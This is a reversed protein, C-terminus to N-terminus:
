PEGRDISRKLFWYPFPGPLNLRKAERLYAERHKPFRYACAVLLPLSDEPQLAIARIDLITPEASKELLKALERQELTRTKLQAIAKEYYDKSKAKDGKEAWAVSFYLALRPVNLLPPMEPLLKEAEKMEGLELHMLMTDWDSFRSSPLRRSLRQAKRVNGRRQALEIESRLVLKGPDNPM